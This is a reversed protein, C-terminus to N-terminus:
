GEILIAADKPGGEHKLADRFRDLFPGADSEFVVVDFHSGPFCKSGAL